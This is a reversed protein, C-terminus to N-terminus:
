NRSRLWDVLRRHQALTESVEHLGLHSVVSAVLWLVIEAIMFFPLKMAFRLLFMGRCQNLCFQNAILVLIRERM